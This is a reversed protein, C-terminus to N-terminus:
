PRRPKKRRPRALPGRTAAGFAQDLVSDLAAGFEADFDVAGDLQPLEYTKLWGKLAARDALTAADAEARAIGRRLRALDANFAREVMEPLADSPRVRLVGAFPLLLEEIEADLEKSQEALVANFHKLKTADVAGLRAPDIQELEIQLELLCLLDGREYAQNARQMLATKRRREGADPERDPHLSSALRRYVERVSQTAAKQAEDRQAQKMAHKAAQKPTQRRPASGREANRAQEEDLKARLAEHVDAESGFTGPEGLDVGLMAEALGALMGAEERQTEEYSLESHKDHLAVLNADPEDTGGLQAQCIEVVLAALKARERKTYGPGDHAADFLRALAACRDRHARELPEYEAHVRRLHRPVFEVWRRLSERQAEIKRILRNFAKQAPSLPSGIDAAHVRVPLRSEDGFLDEQSAM